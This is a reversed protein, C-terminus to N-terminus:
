RPRRDRGAKRDTSEESPPGGKAPQPWSRGVCRVVLSSHVPSRPSPVPKYRPGIELALHGEIDALAAGPSVKGVLVRHYLLSQDREMAAWFPLSSDRRWQTLLDCESEEVRGLYLLERETPHLYAYLVGSWRWAPDTDGVLRWTVTVHM